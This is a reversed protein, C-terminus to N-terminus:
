PPTSCAHWLSELGVPRRILRALGARVCRLTPVAGSRPPSRPQSHDGSVPLLALEAAANDAASVCLDVMDDFLRVPGVRERIKAQQAELTVSTTVGPLAM